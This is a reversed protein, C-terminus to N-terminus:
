SFSCGSISDIAPIASPNGILRGSEQRIWGIDENYVVLFYQGDPSVGLVPLRGSVTPGLGASTEGPGERFITGTGAVVFTAHVVRAQEIDGELNGWERSIWGVETNYRALYYQADPSVGIVPLTGRVNLNIITNTEGPEERMIAGLGAIVFSPSQTGQAPMSIPCTDTASSPATPSLPMDTLLSTATENPVVTETSTNTVGNALAIAAQTLTEAGDSITTENLYYFVGFGVLLIMIASLPWLWRVRSPQPRLNFTRTSMETTDRSRPVVIGLTTKIMRALDAIAEDIYLNKVDLVHIGDSQLLANIADTPPKALPQYSEQFLPIM